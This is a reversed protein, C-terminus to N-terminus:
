ANQKKLWLAAAGAEEQTLAHGGPQWALTVEAGAERLLAALRETEAEPVIPDRHGAGILVPIGALDPLTEPVLPVMPHLLIASQLVGPHLLLLAAAINAGNSFGAATVRSPDFGYAGAAEAIFESLAQTQAILDPIDFVGESLRRFFRPMGNELVKGRPSLLSAEPNLLRGLPLLNHEDGGTGHLLLLTDANPVDTAPIHNHIFTLPM